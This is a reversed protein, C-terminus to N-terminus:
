RHHKYRCDYFLKCYYAWFKNLLTKKIDDLIVIMRNYREGIQSMYGQYTYYKFRMYKADDWKISIDWLLRNDIENFRMKYIMLVIYIDDWHFEQRLVYKRDIKM